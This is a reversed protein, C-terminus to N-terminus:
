PSAARAEPHVHIHFHDSHGGIHRILVRGVHYNGGATAQAVCQATVPNAVPQGSIAQCSNAIRERLLQSFAPTVTIYVYDIQNGVQADEFMTVLNALTAADQLNYGTFRIDVHTGDEHTQHDACAGAHMYSIDNVEFGPIVTSLRDCVVRVLPRAWGDGGLNPDRTGFRTGTYAVLTKCHIPTSQGTTGHATCRAEVTLTVDQEVALGALILVDSDASAFSFLQTTSEVTVYGTTRVKEESLPQQLAASIQAGNARIILNVKDQQISCTKLGAITISGPIHTQGSLYTHTGLSLYGLQQSTRAYEGTRTGALDKLAATVALHCKEM